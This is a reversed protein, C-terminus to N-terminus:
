KYKWIYYCMEKIFISKKIKLLTYLLIKYTLITNFIQSLYIFRVVDLWLMNFWKTLIILSDNALSYIILLIYNNKILSKILQIIMM